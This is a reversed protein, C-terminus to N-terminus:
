CVDYAENILHFQVGCNNGRCVDPHYQLFLSCSFLIQAFVWLFFRFIKKKVRYLISFSVQLALQRFAKKVESESAGPQIRLTKYPDMVSSSSSSYSASCIVKVRGMMMKKKKMNKLQTWSSSSGSSGNAGITGAVSAMKRLDFVWLAALLM